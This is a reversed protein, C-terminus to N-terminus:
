ARTGDLAAAITAGLNDLKIEEETGDAMRKLKAIGSDLENDGLVLTFLSGLKNALRMQAKLSKGSFDM